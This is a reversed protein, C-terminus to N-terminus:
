IQQRGRFRMFVRRGDGDDFAVLDYNDDPVGPVEM